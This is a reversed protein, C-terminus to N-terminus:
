KMSRMECGTTENLWFSCDLRQVHRRSLFKGGSSEALIPWLYWSHAYSEHRETPDIALRTRVRCSQGEKVIDIRPTLGKPLSYKM